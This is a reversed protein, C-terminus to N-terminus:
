DDDDYVFLVGFCLLAFINMMMDVFAPRGLHGLHFVPQPPQRRTWTRGRGTDVPTLIHHPQAMADDVKDRLEGATTYRGQECAVTIESDDMLGVVADIDALGM